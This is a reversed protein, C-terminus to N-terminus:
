REARKNINPKGVDTIGHSRAEDLATKMSMRPDAGRGLLLRFMEADGKRAAKLVPGADLFIPTNMNMKAGKDLLVRIIELNSGSAALSLASTNNHDRTEPNVGKKLLRRVVEVHHTQIAPFLPIGQRGLWRNYRLCSSPNIQPHALLVRVVETHRYKAALSLALQCHKGHANM